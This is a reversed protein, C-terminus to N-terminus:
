ENNFLADGEAVGEQKKKNLKKKTGEMLTNEYSSRLLRAYESSGKANQTEELLRKYFRNREASKSMDYKIYEDPNKDDGERAKITIVNTEKNYFPAVGTLMEYTGVPDQKYKEYLNVGEQEIEQKQLQKNQASSPKQPSPKQTKAISNEYSDFRKAYRDIYLDTARRRLEAGKEEDLLDKASIKEKGSPDLMNNYYAALDVPKMANIDASLSNFVQAKVKNIDVVEVTDIYSGRDIRKTVLFNKNYQNKGTLPDKTSILKDTEELTKTKDPVIVISGEIKGALLDRFYAQPYRTPEGTPNGKEDTEQIIYDVNLSGNKDRSVDIKRTGPTNNLFINVAKLAKPDTQTADIGGQTNMKGYTEKYTAALESFAKIGNVIQEPLTKLKALENRLRAQEKPDTITGLDLANKIDSYEDIFAPLVEPLNLEPNDAKYKQYNYNILDEEDQNGKIIKANEEQRRKIEAQEQKKQEAYNAAVNAFTGTITQQLNALYQASQTDVIQQPNTYSM